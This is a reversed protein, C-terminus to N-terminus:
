RGLFDQVGSVEHRRLASAGDGAGNRFWCVLLLVALVAAASSAARGPEARVVVSGPVGDFASDVRSLRWRATALISCVRRGIVFDDEVEGDDVVPEQGCKSVPRLHSELVM